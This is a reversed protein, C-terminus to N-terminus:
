SARSPLLGGTGVPCSRLRSLIRETHYAHLRVREWDDATLPEAKEWIRAPTAVRGLDHVLAPVVQSSPTM